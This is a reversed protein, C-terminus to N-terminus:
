QERSHTVINPAVTRLERKIVVDIVEDAKKALDDVVPGDGAGLQRNPRIATPHRSATRTASPQPSAGSGDSLLLRTGPTSDRPAAPDPSPREPRRVSM